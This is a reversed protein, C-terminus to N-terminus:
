PGRGCPQPVACDLDDPTPDFGCADHPPPLPTSEWFSRLIAAADAADLRGNDDADAAPACAPAPGGALLHDLLLLADKVEVTGSADIDGRRFLRAPGRCYSIVRRKEVPQLAADGDGADPLGNGNCDAAGVEVFVVLLLLGAAFISQPSPLIM